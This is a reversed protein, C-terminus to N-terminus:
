QYLSKFDDRDRIPDFCANNNLATYFDDLATINPCTATVSDFLPTTFQRRGSRGWKDLEAAYYKAKQLAALAEDFRFDKCFAMAKRLFGYQLTSHYYQYNGDPFLVALIKEAADYAELTKTAFTLWFLFRNLYGEAIKQCHSIKEEGELCGCLAEAREAENSLRMVYEKAEAKRGLTCLALVIGHLANDLLQSEKAHDLVIKFHLVSSELLRKYESDDTNQVAVYYEAYALWAVYEMNGPYEAAAQLAIQYNEEKDEQKWYEFYAKDFEAKRQDKQYTEMGLLFDTTVGFLNALPPLLSIDPMAANTEWRSVAQPSISLIEALKEQTMGSAHRLTKITEAFSM